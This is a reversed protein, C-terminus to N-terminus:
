NCTESNLIFMGPYGFSADTMEGPYQPTGDGNLDKWIWIYLQNNKAGPPVDIAAKILLDSWVLRTLEVKNTTVAYPVNKMGNWGAGTGIFVRGNGQTAGFGWGYIKAISNQPYCPEGLECITDEDGTADGMIECYHSREIQNPLVLYLALGNDMTFYEPDSVTIQNIIDGNTYTTSSDVDVYYITRVYVSYTGLNMDQCQKLLPETGDKIFDDDTDQFFDGFLFQFSTNSWAGYVTAQWTGSSSVVQVVKAIGDPQGAPVGDRATGFDTGTVTIVQRCLGSSPSITAVTAGSGLILDELNSFGTETQVAVKYNGTAYVWCPIEFEIQTSTWSMIPVVNWITSSSLRIKVDRATTKVDGFHNGTLTVVGDCAIVQTSIDSIIPGAIPADPLWTPLDTGHCGFCQENATFVQYTTPAVDTTSANSTDPVHFGDALWGNVAPPDGTGGTGVHPEIAHLTAIDHCTECYRILEPNNPDYSPNDPDVSHCRECDTAVNGNSLMHHTDYNSEIKKGYEFYDNWYGATTGTQSYATYPDNHDFTSPHGADSVDGLLGGANYPNGSQPDYNNWGVTNAVIPQEWHCNECDYPSPTVVSPPYMAFPVYEDDVV